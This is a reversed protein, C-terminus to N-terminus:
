MKYRFHGEKDAFFYSSGAIKIRYVDLDTEKLRQKLEDPVEGYFKYGNEYSAVIGDETICAAWLMGYKECGDKLWDLIGSNSASYHEKSILIWDGSDNFTVSYIIENDAHYERIEKELSAPIDYWRFGNEGYLVCWSGNETLQVDDIYENAENLEHLANFLNDPLGVGAWGNRGHLALDGNTKTIAVNRCDGWEEINDRLYSRDLNANNLSGSGSGTGSVEPPTYHWSGSTSPSSPASPTTPTTPTTPKSPTTPTTPTTPTSPTTPTYPKYPSSNGRSSCIIYGVYERVDKVQEPLNKSQISNATPLVASGEPLQNVLSLLYSGKIAYSVNEAGTHKANIIGIVNGKRDFLPGGSNGPQIPASIQYEVRNNDYGSHSSIVGTTLKIEEGMTTTMPYGLVYVFEGVDGLSQKFAYPLTGFGRFKPDTIKIIALDHDEDAQVVEATYEVVQEGKYFRVVISRAGDIVHHNTVVYGYNLAWGTGSWSSSSFSQAAVPLVLGMVWLLLIMIRKNM